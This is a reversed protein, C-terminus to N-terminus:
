KTINALITMIIQCYFLICTLLRHSWGTATSQNAPIRRELILVVLWLWPAHRLPTLWEWAHGATLGGWAPATDARVQDTLTLNLGLSYVTASFPHQFMGWWQGRWLSSILRGVFFLLTFVFFQVSGSLFSPSIDSRNAVMIPCTLVGAKHKM